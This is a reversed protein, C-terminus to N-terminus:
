SAVGSWGTAYTTDDALAARLREPQRLASAFFGDPSCRAYARRIVEAGVRVPLDPTDREWKLEAGRPEVRQVVAFGFASHYLVDNARLDAIDRISKL